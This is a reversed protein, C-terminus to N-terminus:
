GTEGHAKEKQDCYILRTLLLGIKLRLKSRNSCHHMTILTTSSLMTNNDASRLAVALNNALNKTKLPPVDQRRMLTMTTMMKRKKSKCSTRATM